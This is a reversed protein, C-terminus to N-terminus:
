SNADAAKRWKAMIAFGKIADAFEEDSLGMKPDFELVFIKLLKIRVPDLNTKAAKFKSKIKDLRSQFKEILEAVENVANKKNFM